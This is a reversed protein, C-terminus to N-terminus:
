DSCGIEKHLCSCAVQNGCSTVKQTDVSNGILSYLWLLHQLEVVSQGDACKETRNLCVSTLVYGVLLHRM